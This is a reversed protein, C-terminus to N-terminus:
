CKLVKIDGPIDMKYVVGQGREALKFIRGAGYAGGHEQSIREVSESNCLDNHPIDATRIIYPPDPFLFMHYNDAIRRYLLPQIHKQLMSMPIETVGKELRVPDNPRTWYLLSFVEIGGGRNLWNM